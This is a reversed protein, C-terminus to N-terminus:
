NMGSMENVVKTEHGHMNNMENKDVTETALTMRELKALTKRCSM